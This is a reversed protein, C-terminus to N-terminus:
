SESISAAMFYYYKNSYLAIRAIGNSKIEEVKFLVYSKNNNSVEVLAAMGDKIKNINPSILISKRRTCAQISLVTAYKLPRNEHKAIKSFVWSGNKIEHIRDFEYDMLNIIDSLHMKENGIKLIIDQFEGEYYLKLVLLAIPVSGKKPRSNKIHEDSPKSSTEKENKEDGFGSIYLGNSLDSLKLLKWKGDGDISYYKSKFSCDSSHVVYFMAGCTNSSRRYRAVKRCLRCAYDPAQGKTITGRELESMVESNDVIENTISNIYEVRKM